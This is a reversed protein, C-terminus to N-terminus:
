LMKKNNRKAIIFLIVNYIIIVIKFITYIYIITHMTGYFLENMLQSNMILCGIISFIIILILFKIKNKQQYKFSFLWCLFDPICAMFYIALVIPFLILFWGSAGGSEASFVENILTISLIVFSILCYVINLISIILGINPLKSSNNLKNNFSQNNTNASEFTNMHQLTSEPIIPQQNFNQNNLPQNNSIGNHGQISFNDKNCNNQEQNM